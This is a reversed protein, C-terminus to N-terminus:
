VQHRTPLFYISLARSFQLLLFVSECGHRPSPRLGSAADFKFTSLVRIYHKPGNKDFSKEDLNELSTKGVSKQMETNKMKKELHQFAFREM